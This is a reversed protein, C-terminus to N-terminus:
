KKSDQLIQRFGRFASRRGIRKAQVELGELAGRALNDMAERQLAASNNRGRRSARAAADPDFSQILRAVGVAQRSFKQRARQRSM